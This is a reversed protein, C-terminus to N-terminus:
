KEYLAAILAGKGTATLPDTAMRVESVEIPLGRARLTKEFLGKFGKPKATGGALVIPIPRESKPLKEANSISRRLAEILTEVLDDYYIHLAKEFKDKPPRSLDLTEEKMVKVRTSAENLV